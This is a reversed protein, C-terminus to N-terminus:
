LLSDKPRTPAPMPKISQFRPKHPNHCYACLLYEKAGNWYGTRRGHVGAKWDRYITGHCQGCLRHSQDFTIKEGTILMLTDRDDANHCDLCWREPEGHGTIIKDPHASPVRKTRDTKQKAHCNSCPFFPSSFINPPPTTYSKNTTVDDAHSFGAGLLASAVLAMILAM